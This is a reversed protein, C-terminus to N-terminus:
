LSLGKKGSKIEGSLLEWVDCGLAKCLKNLTDIRPNERHRNEILSITEEAIGSLASLESQTLGKKVRFQKLYKGLKSSM